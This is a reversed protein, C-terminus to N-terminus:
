STQAWTNGNRTYTGAKSGTIYADWLSDGSYNPFTSSYWQTTINSGEGFIVTTLDTCDSFAQSGITTVGEEITVSTLGTCGAFPQIGM